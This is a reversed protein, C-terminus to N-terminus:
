SEHKVHDFITKTKYTHRQSHKTLSVVHCHNTVNRVFIMHIRFNSSLLHHQHFNKVSALNVLIFFDFNRTLSSRAVSLLPLTWWGGRCSHSCRWGVIIGFIPYDPVRNIRTIFRRNLWKSKSVLYTGQIRLTWFM